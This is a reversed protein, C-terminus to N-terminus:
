RVVLLDEPSGLQLHGFVEPGWAVVQIRTGGLEDLSAWALRGGGLSFGPLSPVNEILAEGPTGSTADMAYLTLQGLGTGDGAGVWVALRTGTEDWDARWDTVPGSALVLDGRGARGTPVADDDPWPGMVLNGSRPRWGHGDVTREVTGDWWVAIRGMPDVAPRWMAAVPVRTEEGTGPDLVVTVPSEAQAPEPSSGPSVVRSVVLRDGIWDAFVSGGDDTVARAVQEGVRWVYVDPGRLGSAPRATFAFASGDRSYGAIRGVIVVNSAITLVGNDEAVPISPTPGAPNTADPDPTGDGPTADPDPSGPDPSVTADPTATAPPPSVPGPEPLDTAAPDPSSPDATEAPVPSPTAAPRGTEDMLVVYVMNALPRREVVVLHARSPALLVEASADTDIPMLQRRAITAQSRCDDADLGCVETIRSTSIELRGDARVRALQVERAALAMPTTVPLPTDGTPPPAGTAQPVLVERGGLFSVGVAFAIVLLGTIANLPPSQRSRVPPRRGTGLRATRVPRPASQEIRAATRAWLDRPPEPTEIRLSRLAVRQGEYEDAVARCPACWALHATLWDADDFALPEGLRAAALERARDHDARFPDRGGIHTV